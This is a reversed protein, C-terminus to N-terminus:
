RNHRPVIVEKDEDQPHVRQIIGVTKLDIGLADEVYVLSEHGMKAQIKNRPIVSFSRDMANLAPLPFKLKSENYTFPGATIQFSQFFSINQHTGDNETCSELAQDECYVLACVKWSFLKTGDGATRMGDFAMLRYEGNTDINNKVGKDYIVTIVTFDLRCCFNSDTCVNVSPNLPNVQVTTYNELNESLWFHGDDENRYSLSAMIRENSDIKLLDCNEVPTFPAVAYVINTGSNPDFTHNVSGCFGSFIGSGLQGGNPRHYGSALLNSETSFAWM